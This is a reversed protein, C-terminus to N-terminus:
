MKREQLNFYGIVETESVQLVSIYNKRRLGVEIDGEVENCQSNRIWLYIRESMSYGVDDEDDQSIGTDQKNTQLKDKGHTISGLPLNLFAESRRNPFISVKMLLALFINKLPIITYLIIMIYVVKAPKYTTM